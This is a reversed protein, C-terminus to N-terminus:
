HTGKRSMSSWSRITSNFVSLSNLATIGNKQTFKIFDLENTPLKELYPHSSSAGGVKMSTILHLSKRARTMAVYFADEKIYKMNINDFGIIIVHQATLGKCGQFSMLEVANLEGKQKNDLSFKFDAIEEKLVKVSEGHNKIIKEIFDLSSLEKALADIDNLQYKDYINLVKRANDKIKEIEKNAINAIEIKKQLAEKVILHPNKVEEYSIIKRFIFNNEPCKALSLYDCLNKYTNSVLAPVVHQKKEIIEKLKKYKKIHKEKCSPSVVFLFPDVIEGQKLKENIATIEDSNKEIFNKIYSAASSPSACAVVNIRSNGDVASIPFYIKDISGPEKERVDEIFTRAANVINSSCRGCFPLFAKKFKHDNYLERIYEKHSNKMTDYLVQDDDGAFLGYTSKEIMKNILEKECNNFDQYEDVIIFDYKPCVLEGASIGEYALKIQDDFSLAKYLHIMENYSNHIKEWIPDKKCKSKYNLDHTQHQFKIYSYSKADVKCIKLIDLWIEEAIDHFIIQKHDAYTESNNLIENALAHLTSSTIQAKKPQLEIDHEIKDGLEKALKSVFTTVLIKADPKINLIAKIKNIFLHSKGTGPGSLIIIKDSVDDIIESSISDRLETRETTNMRELDAKLRQMHDKSPVNDFVWGNM